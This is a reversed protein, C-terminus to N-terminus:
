LVLDMRCVDLIDYQDLPGLNELNATFQIIITKPNKGIELVKATRYMWKQPHSGAHPDIYNFNKM